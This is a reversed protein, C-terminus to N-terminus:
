FPFVTKFDDKMSIVTWGREQALQLSKEAGKDYAYERAADDHHVLLCLWPRREDEAHELMEIDGNSNGAALIPRRGIHLEINVPKGPGDDIPEILGPKRLLVPGDPGRQWEFTVNSGIVNERPIDYIEESVTRVFSMGGGTTIFVKFENAQLFHVLEVMPRYICQQFLAGFRPHSATALFDKALAEFESQSMGAHSDYGIELLEHIHAPYLDAFYGMDGEVAAKYAPKDRLSPDAAAMQRLRAIGFFLQIYAPKECWLTGDNDFTAVREAPPVYGPGSVDTVAAVFDLISQKTPTDNCSPMLDTM